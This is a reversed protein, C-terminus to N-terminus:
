PGEKRVRRSAWERGARARIVYTGDPAAQGGDSRGDWVLTVEGPGAAGRFLEAVRRGAGDLVGVEV